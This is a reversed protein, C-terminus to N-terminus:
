SICKPYLHIVFFGVKNIHANQFFTVQYELLGWPMRDMPIKKQSITEALGAVLNPKGEEHLVCMAKVATSIFKKEEIPLKHKSCMQSFTSDLINLLDELSLELLASSLASIAPMTNQGIIRASMSQTTMQGQPTKPSSFYDVGYAAEADDLTNFKMLEKTCVARMAPGTSNSIPFIEFVQSFWSLSFLVKIIHKDKCINKQYMYDVTTQKCGMTNSLITYM